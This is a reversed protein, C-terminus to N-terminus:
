HTQKIQIWKDRKFENAEIRFAMNFMPWGCNNIDVAQGYFRYVMIIFSPWWIRTCIQLFWGMKNSIRSHKSFEYLYDVSKANYILRQGCWLRELIYTCVYQIYMTRGRKNTQEGVASWFAFPSAVVHPRIRITSDQSSTRHVIGSLRNTQKLTIPKTQCSKQHNFIHIHQTHM